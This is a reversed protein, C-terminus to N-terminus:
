SPGSVVVIVAGVLVALVLAAVSILIRETASADILRQLTRRWRAPEDSM